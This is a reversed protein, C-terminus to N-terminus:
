VHGTKGINIKWVCEVVLVVDCDSATSEEVGKEDSSMPSRRRKKLSGGM